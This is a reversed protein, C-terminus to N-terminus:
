AGTWTRGGHGAHSSLSRFLFGVSLSESTAGLAVDSAPAPVLLCPDDAIVLMLKDRSRGAQDATTFRAGNARWRALRECKELQFYRVPHIYEGLKQERGRNQLSASWRSQSEKAWALSCHGSETKSKDSVQRLAVELNSYQKWRGPKLDVM